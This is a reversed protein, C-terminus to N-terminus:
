SMSSRTMEDLMAEINELPTDPMIGNGAAFLLGGRKCFIEVIRRIEKRVDEVNGNPLLHQVDAGYLFSIRGGFKEATIEEDMCDKQVPHFVDLGAELLYDM